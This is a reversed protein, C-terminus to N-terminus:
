MGSAPIKQNKQTQLEGHEVVPAESKAELCHIVKLDNNQFKLV